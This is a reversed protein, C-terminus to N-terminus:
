LGCRRALAQRLLGHLERMQPFYRTPPLTSRGLQVPLEGPNTFMADWLNWLASRSFGTDIDQFRM